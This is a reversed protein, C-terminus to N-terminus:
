EDCLRIGHVACDYRNPQYAAPLNGCAHSFERFSVGAKLRAMNRYLWDHAFRYLERQEATPEVAGCLWSRSIDACYGLPGILDTDFSVMDGAEIVRDGCEQFWPNTRPGSTLLRTEIWEGGNAINTQHLISWLENETMGPRLADQMARMGREAVWIAHRIAGLEEASKIVRAYEMLNQGEVVAVGLAGLAFTGAPDLRDVALRANGGGHQRVLDSIEDAWRDAMENVRPGNVFFCWSTAPRIDDVTELDRSLHHTQPGDFVIVPGETAVFVYRHPNHLTWVQMNSSDTAYRINIPDFLVIGAVDHRALQERVRSLRYRRLTRLEAQDLAHSIDTM